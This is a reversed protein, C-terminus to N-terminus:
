HWRGRALLILGARRERIRGRERAEKGRRRGWPRRVVTVAATMAGAILAAGVEGSHDGLEAESRQDEGSVSDLRPPRLQTFRGRRESTRGGGIEVEPFGNFGKLGVDHKRHGGPTGVGRRRSGGRLQGLVTHRRAGGCFRAAPLRRQGNRLPVAVLINAKDGERWHV